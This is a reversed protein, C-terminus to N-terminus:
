SWDFVQSGQEQLGGLIGQFVGFRHESSPIANLSEKLVSWVRRPEGGRSLGRGFSYLRGHGRILNTALSEILNNAEAVQKGLAHAIAEQREWSNTPEKDEEFEIDDFDLGATSSGTVVARVRDELSKPGLREGLAVIKSRVDGPMAKSEFNLTQRVALWGDRWFGDQALEDFLATLEEGVGCHAYLGRFQSTLINKMLNALAPVKKRVRNLLALFSRDPAGQAAHGCL